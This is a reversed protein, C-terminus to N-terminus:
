MIEEFEEQEKIIEELSCKVEHIMQKLRRRGEKNEKILKWNSRNLRGELVKNSRDFYNIPRMFQNKEIVANLRPMFKEDNENKDQLEKM